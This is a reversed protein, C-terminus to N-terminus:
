DLKVNKIKTFMRTVNSDSTLILTKGKECTGKMTLPKGQIDRLSLTITNSNRNVKEFSYTGRAYEFPKVILQETSQVFVMVKVDKDSTFLLTMMVAGEAGNVVELSASAWVSHSVQCQAHMTMGCSWLTFITTLLILKKIMYIVTNKM